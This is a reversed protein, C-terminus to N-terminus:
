SKFLERLETVKQMTDLADEPSLNGGHLKAMLTDIRAEVTERSARELAEGVHKEVDPIEQPAPSIGKLAAAQEPPLEALFDEWARTDGPQPLKELYHQLVIGGSLVQM